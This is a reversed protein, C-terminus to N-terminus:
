VLQSLLTSLPVILPRKELFCDVDVGEEDFVAQFAHPAGTKEQYYLLSKSLGHNASQKV